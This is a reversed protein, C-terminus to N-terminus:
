RFVGALQGGEEPVAGADFQAARRSELSRRERRQDIFMEACPQLALAHGEGRRDRARVGSRQRLLVTPKGLLLDADPRAAMIDLMAGNFVMFRNTAMGRAVHDILGTAPLSKVVVRLPLNAPKLTARAAAINRDLRAQDIVLVPHAVGAKRLAATLALFYADHAGGHDSKRSALVAAGGVVALGGGVMAARRTWRKTRGAEAM